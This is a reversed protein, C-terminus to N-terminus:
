VKVFSDPSRNVENYPHYSKPTKDGDALLKQKRYNNNYEGTFNNTEYSERNISKNVDVATPSLAFSKKPYASEEISFTSRKSKQISHLQQSYRELIQHEEADSGASM